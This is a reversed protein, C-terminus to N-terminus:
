LVVINHECLEVMRGLGAFEISDLFECWIVCNWKLITKYDELDEAQISRKLSGFL